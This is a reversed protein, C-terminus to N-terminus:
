PAFLPMASVLSQSRRLRDRQVNGLSVALLAQFVLIAEELNGTARGQFTGRNVIDTDAIAASDCRCPLDSSLRITDISVRNIWRVSRM